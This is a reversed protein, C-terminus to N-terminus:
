MEAKDASEEAKQKNMELLKKTTEIESKIQNITNKEILLATQLIANMIATDSSRGHAKVVVGNVGLVPLGGFKEWNFQKLIRKLTPYLFLFGIKTLLHYAFEKKLEKKLIEGIGEGFKLIANGMLGDCIIVDSAGTVIDTGEAFGAYNLNGADLVMQRARGITEDGKTAEEGNALFRVTPHKISKLISMYISGMQAFQFLHEPKCRVSAGVDMLLTQKQGIPLVIGIAPRDIGEIRGLLLVSGAAIAGTSGASVLGGAEGSKVMQFARVLSSDKKRRIALSSSDNATIIETTHHVQIRKRVSAGAKALYPALLNEDGFLAIELDKRKKLAKIAALCPAKPAHDGGMADLAILM